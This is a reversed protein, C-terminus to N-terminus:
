TVIGAGLTESLALTTFMALAPVLVSVHDAVFAVDHAPVPPAHVPAL